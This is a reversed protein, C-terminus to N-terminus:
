AVRAKATGWEDMWKEAARLNVWLNRDIEKCEEGDLWKGAKRRCRVAEATDGTLEEWKVLKVWNIAHSM